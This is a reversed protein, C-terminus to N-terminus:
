QGDEPRPSDSLQEIWRLRYGNGAKGEIKLNFPAILPRMTCIFVKIIDGATDPGGDARHGYLAHALADVSVWAGFQKALREFITQKSQGHDAWAIALRRVDDPTAPAMMRQGCCPCAATKIQRVTINV